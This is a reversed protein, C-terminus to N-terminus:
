ASERSSPAALHSPLHMEPRRTDVPYADLQIVDMEDALRVHARVSPALTYLAEETIRYVSYSGYDTIRRVGPTKEDLLGPAAVVKHTRGQSLATGTGLALLLAPILIFRRKRAIRM